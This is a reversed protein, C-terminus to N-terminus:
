AFACAESDRKWVNDTSAVIVIVKTAPRLHLDLLCPSFTTRRIQIAFIHLTFMKPLIVKRLDQPYELTFMKTWSANVGCDKMIWVDSTTGQHYTCFVSFDSGTVGLILHSIDKGYNPFNLKEWTEDTLDLSIINCVQKRAVHAFSVWYLMGNVVNGKIVVEKYVDHSEDYGFSYRWVGMETLDLMPLKELKRITPNWLFKEEVGLSVGDLISSALVAM